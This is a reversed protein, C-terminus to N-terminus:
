PDQRDKTIENLSLGALARGFSRYSFVGLVEKGEMVPLQSFGHEQMLRVAEKVATNPGISVVEQDLPIVRNVRHFLESVFQFEPIDPLPEGLQFQSLGDQSPEKRSPDNM